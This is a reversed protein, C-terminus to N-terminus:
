PRAAGENELAAPGACRKRDATGPRAAPRAFLVAGTCADVVRYGLLELQLPVDPGVPRRLDAPIRVAFWADLRHPATKSWERARQEDEVPVFESHLVPGAPTRGKGGSTILRYPLDRRDLPTTCSLCGHLSVALQKRAADYAGTQVVKEDESRLLLVAGGLGARRERAVVECVRRRRADGSRKCDAAFPWLLDALQAPSTVQRAGRAIEEFTAAPPTAVPAAAGPEAHVPPALAAIVAALWAGTFRGRVAGRAPTM